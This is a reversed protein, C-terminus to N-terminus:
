TEDEDECACGSVRDCVPCVNMRDDYQEQTIEVLLSGREGGCEASMCEKCVIVGM